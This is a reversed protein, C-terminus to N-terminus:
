RHPQVKKPSIRNSHLYCSINFAFIGVETIFITLATKIFCM